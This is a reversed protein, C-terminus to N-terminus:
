FLQLDKLKKFEIVDTHALANRADRMKSLMDFESKSLIKSKNCIVFLPGIEVDIARDVREGSSSTIPLYKQINSKYKQAIERRFDELKPFVLKIQSQWVATKVNEELNSIRINNDRLIESATGFPDEALSIGGSALLGAIEVNNRAINSAIEAAYQKQAVSGKETSLVTLCLMLCDYDTVYDSYCINSIFKSENTKSRQVVLIFVAREDSNCNELYENVCKIWQNANSSSLGTICVIRHNLIINDNTALFCEYSKDPWYNKRESESCFREFLYEGPAKKVSSVDEIIFSKTDTMFSLKQELFCAMEDFWPIEDSFNMIVSKGNILNDKIDDLFRVSNVLRSWWLENINM